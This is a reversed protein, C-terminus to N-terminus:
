SKTSPISRWQKIREDLEDAADCVAKAACWMPNAEHTAGEADIETAIEQQLSMAKRWLTDTRKRGKEFLYVNM